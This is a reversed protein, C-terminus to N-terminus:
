NNFIKRILNQIESETYGNDLLIDKNSNIIDELITKLPRGPEFQPGPPMYVYVLEECFDNDTLEECLKIAANDTVAWKVEQILEYYGSIELFHIFPGISYPKESINGIILFPFLIALLIKM